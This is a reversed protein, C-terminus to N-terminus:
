RGQTRHLAPAVEMIDLGWNKYWEYTAQSDQAIQKLTEEGYLHQSGTVFWIELSKFDKM